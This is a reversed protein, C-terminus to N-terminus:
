REAAIHERVVSKMDVSQRSVDGHKGFVPEGLDYLSIDAQAETRTTLQRLAHKVIDTKRFDM